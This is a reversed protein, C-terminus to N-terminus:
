WQEIEPDLWVHLDNCRSEALRHESPTHAGDKSDADVSAKHIGEEFGAHTCTKARPIGQQVVGEAASEEKARRRACSQLEPYRRGSEGDEHSPQVMRIGSKERGILAYVREVRKKTVPKSYM